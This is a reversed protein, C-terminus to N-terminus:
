SQQEGEAQDTELEPCIGLAVEAEIVTLAQDVKHHALMFLQAYTLRVGRASLRRLDQEVAQVGERIIRERVAQHDYLTM